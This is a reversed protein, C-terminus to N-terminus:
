FPLMKIWTSDCETFTAFLPLYNFFSISNNISLKVCHIEDLLLQHDFDHRMVFQQFLEDDTIFKQSEAGIESSAEGIKFVQEKTYELDIDVEFFM